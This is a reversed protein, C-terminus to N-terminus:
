SLYFEWCLILWTLTFLKTINNHKCRQLGMVEVIEDDDERLWGAIIGRDM